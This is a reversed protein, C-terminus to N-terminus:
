RQGVLWADVAAPLIRLSIVDGALADEALADMYSLLGASCNHPLGTLWDRRGDVGDSM